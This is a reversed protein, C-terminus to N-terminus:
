SRLASELSRVRRQLRRNFAPGDDAHHARRHCNPCLAIVRAPHDPGEDALRTTHHPELYPTSDPRVFPADGGCGECTGAARKLVYLRIALSRVRYLTTRRRKPVAAASKMLAVSRLEDLNSAVLAEEDLDPLRTLRRRAVLRWVQDAINRAPTTISRPYNAWNLRPVSRKIAGLSIPPRILRVNTLATGYRKPWDRRRRPNSDVRATAFFGFGGVYIVVDDGVEASRPAVWATARLRRKAARELWAKDGNDIGGQVIHLMNDM